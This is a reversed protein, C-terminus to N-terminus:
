GDVTTSRNSSARQPIAELHQLMIRARCLQTKSNKLQELAEDRTNRYKQILEDHYKQITSEDGREIFVVRLQDASGVICTFFINALQIAEEKNVAHVYGLVSGMAGVESIRYVGEGAAGLIRWVSKQIRMWVRDSCRQLVATKRNNLSFVSSTNYLRTVLYKEIEYRNRFGLVFLQEDTYSQDPEKKLLDDVIEQKIEVDVKVEGKWDWQLMLYKKM